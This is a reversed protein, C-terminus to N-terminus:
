VHANVDITCIIMKPVVLYSFLLLFCRRGDKKTVSVSEDLKVYSSSFSTLGELGDLWRLVEFVQFGEGASAM